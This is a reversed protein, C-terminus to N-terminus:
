AARGYGEVLDADARKRVDALTTQNLIKGMEYITILASNDREGEVTKFQGGEIVIDLHGSLSKKGHDTIPDKFVKRPVGNITVECCKYAVKQTDRNLQQLLGGGMGFGINSVSYKHRLMESLIENISDRNVGDGQIIRFYPPLQKYGKMNKTMGVKDELIRLCKLVVEVPTGSDPRIVLTGGSAKVEERLEEGWFNQVANYIDYSDSVCAVIKGPKLFQKIMNRYAALEGERGWSTITSHEAAPISFGAMPEGYYARAYRLAEITDTGRFNVLHAMGGIGASELSSVGRAGFDHLKFLIETWPDNASEILATLIDRKIYHSLTAVTQPYWLRVLMTEMHGQLWATEKDLSEVRLNLNQTPVMTGEPLARIRIPLFGDFKEVIRMWGDERFPEGHAEALEKAEQVDEKTVPDALYRNLLYQQGFSMSKGFLGGRSSLYSMMGDMGEPFQWPHSLKYSDTNLALNHHVIRAMSM